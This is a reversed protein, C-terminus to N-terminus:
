YNNNARAAARMVDETAMCRVTCQTTPFAVGDILFRLKVARDISKLLSSLVIRCMQGSELDAHTHRGFIHYISKCETKM